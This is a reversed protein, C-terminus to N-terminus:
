LVRETKKAEIIPIDRGDTRMKEVTFDREIVLDDGGLIWRYECHEDEILAALQLSDSACGIMFIDSRITKTNSM